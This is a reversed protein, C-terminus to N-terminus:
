RGGRDRVLAVALGLLGGVVAGIAPAAPGLPFILGAGAATGVGTGVGTYLTAKDDGDRGVNNERMFGDERLEGDVNMPVRTGM